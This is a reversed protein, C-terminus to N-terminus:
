FLGNVEAEIREMIKGLDEPNEGFKNVDVDVFMVKGKNYTTIWAEYRENLRNLYDLRIGAEYARGRKQIQEVLTSVSARLYILLDPPQLYPEM